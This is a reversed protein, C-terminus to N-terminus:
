VNFIGKFNMNLWNTLEKLNSSYMIRKIYNIIRPMHSLYTHNNELIALRAFIGLIKISRQVGLIHYQEMFSLKDFQYDNFRFDAKYLEILYKEHDENITLRADNTLSVLDYLPHGLLADQFDIIACKKYGKENELFLLNPSHFDRLMLTKDNTLDSYAKKMIHIFEQKQDESCIKGNVFPWYYDIFIEAENLYIDLDFDRMYHANANISINKPHKINSIHILTEIAPKYLKKYSERNVATLYCREGLDEELLLADTKNRAILKPVRVNISDLYEGIIIFDDIGQSLGTKSRTDNEQTADMLIMNDKLGTVRFYKRKSADGPLKELRTFNIDLDNLFNKIKNLNDLIERCKGLPKVKYIRDVDQCEILIEIRDEPLIKSYKDAWEIICIKNEFSDSLDIESLEIESEIRYFDYHAIELAGSEYTQYLNFTPSSIEDLPTETLSNILLKAFTTKGSGIQGNLAIVDGPKLMVSLEKVFQQLDSLTQFIYEDHIM